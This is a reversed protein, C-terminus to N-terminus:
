SWVANNFATPVAEVIPALLTVMALMSNMTVVTYVKGFPASTLTSVRLIEIALAFLTVSHCTATLACRRSDADSRWSEAAENLTSILEESGTAAVAMLVEACSVDANFVASTLLPMVVVAGLAVAGCPFTFTTVSTLTGVLPLTASTEAPKLLPSADCISLLM